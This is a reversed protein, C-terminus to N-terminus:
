VGLPGHAWFLTYKPGLTGVCTSNANMSWHNPSKQCPVTNHSIVDPSIQAAKMSHLLSLASEWSGDIYARLAANYTIVQPQM